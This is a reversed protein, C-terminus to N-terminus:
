LAADLRKKLFQRFRSDVLPLSRRFAPELWPRKPQRSTGLEIFQLAYFAESDVGLFVRVTRKDRSLRSRRRVNRQTFGPTVLRGKHTRKPYPDKGGGGYYYPPAAVPASQRAEKLAPLMASTAASRLAKGGVAPGLASLQKSLKKFGQIPM